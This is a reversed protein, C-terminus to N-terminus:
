SPRRPNPSNVAWRWRKERNERQDRNPQTQSCASRWRQLLNPPEAQSVACSLYPEKGGTVPPMDSPYFSPDTPRQRKTAPITPATPTTSTSSFPRKNVNEIPSMAYSFMSASPLGGFNPIIPDKRKPPLLPPTLAGLTIEKLLTLLFRVPMWGSRLLLAGLPETAQLLTTPQLKLGVERKQNGGGDSCKRRWGAATNSAAASSSFPLSSIYTQKVKTHNRELDYLTQQLNGLEALQAQVTTTTLYVLGRCDGRKGTCKREYDDRQMKFMNADHVLSEFEAKLGELLETARPSRHGPNFM